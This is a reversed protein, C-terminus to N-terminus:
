AGLIIKNRTNVLALRTARWYEPDDDVVSFNNNSTNTLSKLLDGLPDPKQEVEKDIGFAERELGILTKMTDALKQMSVIRSPTSMAKMYLDNLKDIGREDESRLLIGLSEYDERNITQHELEELLSNALSRAKGIDKRHSLRVDAIVRANSDIIENESVSSKATVDATVTQETVIKEAKNKIKESLDRVWGEKKARRSIAVHNTNPHKEAIERLSLVGARYDLEIREWDIQKREAM